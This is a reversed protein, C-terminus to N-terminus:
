EIASLISRHIEMKIRFPIHTYLILQHNLKLQNMNIQRNIIMEDLSTVLGCGTVVCGPINDSVDGMLLKSQMYQTATMTMSDMINDMYVTHISVTPSVLQIFDKDKSIVYIRGRQAIELYRTLLFVIDDAEATLVRIVKLRHQEMYHPLLEHYVRPFLDGLLNDKGRHHIVHTRTAKYEPYIATRWLM